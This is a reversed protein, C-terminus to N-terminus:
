LQSFGGSINGRVIAEAGKVEGDERHKRGRESGASWEKATDGARHGTTQDDVSNCEHAVREGDGGGVVEEEAAVQGVETGLGDLSVTVQVVPLANGEGAHRSFRPM